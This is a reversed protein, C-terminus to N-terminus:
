RESRPLRLLRRDLRVAGRRRVHAGGLRLVVGAPEGGPADRGGACGAPRLDRAGASLRRLDGTRQLHHGAHRLGGRPRRDRRQGSARAGRLPHLRTSSASAQRRRVRGAGARVAGLGLQLAHARSVAAAVARHSYVTGRRLRLGVSRCPGAHRSHLICGSRPRSPPSQPPLGLGEQRRGEPRADGGENAESVGKKFEKVSSGLSRALEPLRNAGFLVLVIVLIILLEQYGLGFM